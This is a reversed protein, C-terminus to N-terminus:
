SVPLDCVLWVSALMSSLLTLKTVFDHMALKKHRCMYASGQFHRTVM